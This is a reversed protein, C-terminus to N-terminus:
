LRPRPWTTNTNKRFTMTRAPPPHRSRRGVKVPRRSAAKARNRRPRRRQRQLLSPSPPNRRKL